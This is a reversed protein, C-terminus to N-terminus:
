KLEKIKLLYDTSSEDDILSRSGSCLRPWIFQGDSDQSLFLVARSNDNLNLDCSSMAVLRLKVVDPIGEGKIVEDIHFNAQFRYGFDPKSRTFSGVLIATSNEVNNGLQIDEDPFLVCRCAFAESAPLFVILFLFKLILNKMSSAIM